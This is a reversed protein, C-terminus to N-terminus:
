RKELSRVLVGTDSEMYLYYYGDSLGQMPLTLFTKGNLKHEQLTQGMANVLTVKYVAGSEWSVNLENHVPNPYLEVDLGNEHELGVFQPCVINYLFQASQSMISDGLASGGSFYSVHGNGPITILESPVSVSQAQQDMLFSGEMTIIPIGFISAAGSAYPVVGDGDDHVSFIDPDNADIYSAKRLAGSFNILGRVNDTHQTNTSSNGTWGGNAALLPQIYSEIADTSDLLATHAAAIGGASIGGVFIFNTDVRYTNANAADEKFFRIAAKMDSVAMLVEETMAVSDPLPILPGDYLRYDITAATYGLSAYYECMWDMDQRTGSIFSGGFAVIVLPRSTAVDGAPEYFDLFLDQNTGGITTANGYQIGTTAAPTYGFGTYRIGDCTPHQAFSM